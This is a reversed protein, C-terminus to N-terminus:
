KFCNENANKVINCIMDAANEVGYADSNICIDYNSMDNWERGTYYKYHNSRLKNIKKIEKKCKPCYYGKPIITPM